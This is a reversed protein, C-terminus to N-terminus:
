AIAAAAAPAQGRAARDWSAALQAVAGLDDTLRAPRDWDFLACLQAIRLRWDHRALTQAINRDRQREVGGGSALLDELVSCALVPDQPLEITAGEWLMADAMPSVPRRGAVICGSVLSELWRSTVMMSRPRDGQPEVFLHFALSISTRHLVKFLMAREQHVSAGTLHGLPSHLYLHPSSPDHFRAQLAAHYGPPTRGFALVDISRSPRGRPAWRLGDIGQFVHHVPVAFRHAVPAADEAATVTIGDYLATQRVFGPEFYSDTVFAHIRQFRRRADPISDVAALDAPSRAVVFLVDGGRSAQPTFRARERGALRRWAADAVPAPALLEADFYRALLQALEDIATWGAHPAGLGPCLVSM